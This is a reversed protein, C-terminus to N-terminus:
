KFESLDIRVGPGMTSSIAVSKFFHGKASAPRAKLVSKLLTVANEYLIAEDFSMKGFACNVNGQKDMKFEIRGAKVEKIANTVDTTVTGAKPNPMLGKPGLIKGLRGMDKMMMPTAIAIEFDTWGAAVKAVLDDGGVIDAGADKAKREDEGKCFVAVKIKKGTGHPLKVMGRVPTATQKPDMNLKIAMEATQDFKTVPGKKLISLADKLNYLKGLEVITNLVKKRKSIRVM